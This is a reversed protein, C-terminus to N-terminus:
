EAMHNMYYDIEDMYELNYTGCSVEKLEGDKGLYEFYFCQGYDDIGINVLYGNIVKSEIYDERKM